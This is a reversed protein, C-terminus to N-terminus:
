IRFLKFLKSTGDKFTFTKGTYINPEFIIGNGDELPELSSFPLERQFVLNLLDKGQEPIRKNNAFIEQVNNNIMIYPFFGKFVYSKGSSRETRFVPFIKGHLLTKILEIEIPTNKPLYKEKIETSSSKSLLNLFKYLTELTYSGYLKTVTGKCIYNDIGEQSVLEPFEGRSRHLVFAQAEVGLSDALGNRVVSSIDIKRLCDYYDVGICSFKKDLQILKLPVERNELLDQIQGLLGEKCDLFSFDPICYFKDEHGRGLYDKPTFVDYFCDFYFHLHINGKKYLNQICTFISTEFIKNSQSRGIIIM